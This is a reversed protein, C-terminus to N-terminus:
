SNTCNSSPADKVHYALRESFGDNTPLYYLVFEKATRYYGFFIPPELISQSLFVFFLSLFDHVENCPLSTKSKDTFFFELLFQYVNAETIEQM